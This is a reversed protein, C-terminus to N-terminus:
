SAGGEAKLIAAGAASLLPGMIPCEECEPSQYARIESVFGKLAALLCPSASILYANGERDTAFGRSTEFSHWHITAIANDPDAAPYVQTRFQGDPGERHSQEWPSPTHILENM